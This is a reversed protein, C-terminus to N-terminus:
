SSGRLGLRSQLQKRYRPSMRLRVGNELLVEYDGDQAVKLGRVRDLNVITSRHIRSFVIPDVFAALYCVVQDLCPAHRRGADRLSNSDRRVIWDRALSRCDLAM